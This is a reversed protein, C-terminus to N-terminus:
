KANREARRAERKLRGALSEANPLRKTPYQLLNMAGISGQPFMGKRPRNVVLRLSRLDRAPRVMVSALDDEAGPRRICIWCNSAIGGPGLTRVEWAPGVHKRVRKALGVVLRDFWPTL